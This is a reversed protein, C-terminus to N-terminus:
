VTGFAPFGVRICGGFVANLPTGGMKKMKEFILPREKAVIPMIEAMGAGVIKPTEYPDFPGFLSKKFLSLLFDIEDPNLTYPMVVNRIMDRWDNKKLVEDEWWTIYDKMGEESIKGEVLALTLASVAKWGSILAGTMESEQCWITDGIFVVQDKYPKTVHSLMNGVVSLRKTKEAKKFWSSFAGRNLFREFAGELDAAPDLTMIIVAYAENGARPTMWVRMRPEEGLFIQFLSREQPIEAGVMEYGMGTNTGFFSRTQNLGLCRALRSTRGDAAIVFTGQFTKGERTVVKVKGGEKVAGIVNYPTFLEGGYRIFERLLCGLLIEKSYVASTRGADGKRINEEYDGIQLKHGKHSWIQWSYFNKHPGDYPVSFGYHPFCLRQDRVNLIVREGLYHGSLSVVMMSCARMIETVNEKREILAVRLGNEAATKAAMLGGPGAGVVVCDYSEKM